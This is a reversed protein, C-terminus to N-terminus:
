SFGCPAARGGIHLNYAALEAVPRVRGPRFAPRSVLVAGSLAYLQKLLILQKWIFTAFM